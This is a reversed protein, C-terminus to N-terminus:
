GMGRCHGFEFHARVEESTHGLYALEFDHIIVAGNMAVATIIGRKILDVLIPNLGVKIPHAGMGLIVPRGRQRAKVIAQVVERLSKVALIDPLSNLFRRFLAGRRWPVSFDTV